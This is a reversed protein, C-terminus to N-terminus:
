IDQHLRSVWPRLIKLQLHKEFATILTDQLQQLVKFMATIDLVKPIVSELFFQWLLPPLRYLGITREYRKYVFFYFHFVRFVM